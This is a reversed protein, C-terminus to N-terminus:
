ASIMARPSENVDHTRLMEAWADRLVGFLQEVEALPELEKGMNAEILRRNFYQYLPDMTKAYDGGVEHNLTGRLETFIAQAKLLERNIIEIRRFDSKPRDFAAHALAMSRLAGDFMMLVLQGPSATLISNERYIRACNRTGIM